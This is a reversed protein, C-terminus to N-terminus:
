IQEHSKNIIAKLQNNFTLLLSLGKVQPSHGAFRRSQHHIESPQRDHPQRGSFM